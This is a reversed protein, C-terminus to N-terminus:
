SFARVGSQAATGSDILLSSLSAHSPLCVHSLFFSFSPTYAALSFCFAQLLCTGLPPAPSPPTHLLLSLFLSSPAGQQSDTESEGSRQACVSIGIAADKGEVSEWVNRRVERNLDVIGSANKTWLNCENEREAERM